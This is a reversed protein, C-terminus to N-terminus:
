VDGSEQDSRPDRLRIKVNTLMAVEADLRTDISRRGVGQATGASEGAGGREEWVGGRLPPPGDWPRFGAEDGPRARFGRRGRRASPTTQTISRHWSSPLSPM